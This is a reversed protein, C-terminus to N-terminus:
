GGLAALIRNLVNVLKGLLGSLPVGDLLHAIACLLNGLLNGPGTQATITLHVRNLHVILGLLDLNLPGLVLNLIQCTGTAKAADLKLGGGAAQPTGLFTADTIPMRALQDVPDTRGNARTLTGTLQGVALAHHNRNVFHTPTYTGRFTGGNSTTGTVPARLLQAATTGPSSGATGASFAGAASLGTTTLVAVSTTIAVLRFLIRKMDHPEGKFPEVFNSQTHLAYQVLSNWKRRPRRGM